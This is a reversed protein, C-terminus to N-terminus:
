SCEESFPNNASFLIETIAKDSYYDNETFNKEQTPDVAELINTLTIGAIYYESNLDTNKISQKGIISVSLDIPNIEQIDGYLFDGEIDRLLIYDSNVDVVYATATANEFTADEGTVGDVQFVQQGKKFRAGSVSPNELSIKLFNYSREDQIIDIETIGTDITEYSYTFLECTLTYTTLIGFQFFPIKDEVYNIEFISNNFPFFILDGERPAKINSYKTVIETNFRTKAVQLTVRDTINLGFKNIMNIQGSFAQVNEIYMEIQHGKKFQSLPDEGFVIDKKLFERPLYVMDRGMIRITEVTLDDLLDREGTYEQFYPNTAM